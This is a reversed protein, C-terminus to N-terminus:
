DANHLKLMIVMQSFLRVRPTLSRSVNEPKNPSVVFMPKSLDVFADFVKINRIYFWRITHEWKTHLIM